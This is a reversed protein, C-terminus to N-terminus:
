SKLNEERVKMLLKGLHNEGKGKCVGFFVDGWTNQEILEHPFTSNLKEKLEPISFKQRLLDEMLSLRFSDTWDARLTIKSRGFRKAEGAKPLMQIIKRQELDLTKAAVYAHEVSPYEM